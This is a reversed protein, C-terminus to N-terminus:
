DDLITSLDAGNVSGPQVYDLSCSDGGVLSYAM